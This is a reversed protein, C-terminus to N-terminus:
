KKGNKRTNIAQKAKAVFDAIETDSDAVNNKDCVKSFQARFATFWACFATFWARFAAFKILGKLYVIAYIYCLFPWGAAVLVPLFLLLAWKAVAPCDVWGSWLLFVGILAFMVDLIRWLLGPFNEGRYQRRKIAVAMKGIRRIDDDRIYSRLEESFNQEIIRDPDVEIGSFFRSMIAPAVPLLLNAGISVCVVDSAHAIFDFEPFSM